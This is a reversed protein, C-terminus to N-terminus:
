IKNNCNNKKYGAYVEDYAKKGRYVPVEIKYQADNDKNDPRDVDYQAEDDVVIEEFRSEKSPEAIQGPSADNETCHPQNASPSVLVRLIKVAGAM